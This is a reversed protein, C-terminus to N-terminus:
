SRRAFARLSTLGSLGDPIGPPTPRPRSRCASTRWGRRDSCNRSGDASGRTPGMAASFPRSFPPSGTTRASRPYCLMFETDPEVSVVWGGPRTLRGDRRWWPPSPVTVLLTRAHVVDFSGSPLGTVRADATLVQVNGLGRGAAFAAAMEVHAPDADVGVVRGGPGVRAALLDLVGRPGCGIDLVSQGPGLRTRELVMTSEPALEDAQRQLRASEEPNQGLAYVADPDGLLSREDM